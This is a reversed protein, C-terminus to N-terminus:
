QTRGGNIGLSFTRMCAIPPCPKYTPCPCWCGGASTWNPSTSAIPWLELCAPCSFIQQIGNLLCSCVPLQELSANVLCFCFSLYFRRQSVSHWQWAAGGLWGQWEAPKRGREFEVCTFWPLVISVERVRQSHPTVSTWKNCTGIGAGPRPCRALATRRSGRRRPTLPGPCAPLDPCHAQAQPSWPHSPKSLVGGVKLRDSLSSLIYKVPRWTNGWCDESRLPSLLSPWFLGANLKSLSVVM